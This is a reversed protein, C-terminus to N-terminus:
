VIQGGDTKYRLIAGVGGFEELLNGDEIFRVNDATAFGRRLIEETITGTKRIDPIEGDEGPAYANLVKYVKKPDYEINNFDASVYLELVQGSSLAALTKEAGAVGLGNDYNQEKLYDIKEKDVLTDNQRIAQEAAEMLEHEPTNVNLRLVDIVKEELEKPLQERLTPIIGTEDGALIIQKIGDERVMKALEEVIEKAHLLHFNELHRQYRMQSWGGVKTGNTKINEIDEKEIIHGRKFAYIHATSTDALVVAYIPNQDILRALPFLHPRDFVFFNNEEFPVEYERAEFYDNAGACAFIAVGRTSPKITELFENIREADRDFSERETTESEFESAKESLQQRVFVDFNFKGNENPETNLYMSIFPFGSPEFETLKKILNEQKMFTGQNTFILIRFYPFFLDFALANKKIKFNALKL